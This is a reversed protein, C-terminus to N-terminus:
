GETGRLSAPRAGRLTAKGAPAAGSDQQDASSAARHDRAARRLRGARAHLWPGETGRPRRTYFAAQAFDMAIRQDSKSAAAGGSVLLTRKYKTWPRRISLITRM